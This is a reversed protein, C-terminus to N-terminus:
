QHIDSKDLHNKKQGLIASVAATEAQLTGFKGESHFSLTGYLFIIFFFRGTPINSRFKFSFWSFDFYCEEEQM